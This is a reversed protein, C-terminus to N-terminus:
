CKADGFSRQGTIQRFYDDLLLPVSEMANLAREDLATEEKSEKNILAASVTGLNWFAVSAIVSATEVRIEVAGKTPDASDRSRLEHSSTVDSLSKSHEEYWKEVQEVIPPPTM